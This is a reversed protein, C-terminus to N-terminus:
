DIGMTEATQKEVYNLLNRTYWLNQYPLLRRLARLDRDTFGESEGGVQMGVGGFVTGVDEITGLTPGLIAGTFNRSAYRSMPPNGTLASIGVNGRTAKEVIGNTEAMLAFVGSYDVSEGLVKLPDTSPTEGRVLEKMSYTLAGLAMSLMLGNYFAADKQQLGAVLMRNHSAFIFSKFQGILKGTPGKMGLPIDGVGPTVIMSDTDKTVANQFLRRTDADWAAGNALWIDGKDSHLNVQEAIDKAQREGIGLQALKRMDAKSVNGDAWKVSNRMVFDSSVSGAWQKLMQNWPSMLSVAGFTNAMGDLSREFKTGQKYSDGIDAIANARTSQIMEFIAANKKAEDMAMGFKKPNAVLSALMKGNSKLGHVMVPRALDPISSLMMGGLKSLFQLNRTVKNARLWFSTPDAPQNYTGYLLDRMAEFDKIDREMRENLQKEKGPSKDILKRYDARIDDIASKGDRSGYMRTMEIEPATSRMYYEAVTEIDSELFFALKNDNIPLTRSKFPSGEPIVNRPITGGPTGMINDYIDSSLSDLYQDNGLKEVKKSESVAAKYVKKEAALEKKLAEREKVAKSLNVQIDKVKAKITAAEEILGAKRSASLNGEPVIKIEAEADLKLKRLRAIEDNFSKTALKADDFQKSLGSIIDPQEKLIPALEEANRLDGQQGRMWEKVITKFRQPNAKLKEFNYVRTLYSDAFKVNVDEPLIDMEIAAKKVPNFVKERYFKAAEAVEPITHVDGNRMSIGVQEKFQGYTLKGSRKATGTLDKSQQVIRGTVGSNVSGRYKMFSKDLAESAQGTLANYSKISTEVAQGTPLGEANKDMYYNNEALNQVAKRSQLSPSTIMRGYPNIAVTKEFGGLTVLSEQQINTTPEVAAAGGSRPATSPAAEVEAEMAKAIQGMEGGTLARVSTGLVGALLGSAGVAVASETVTRTEQTAQLTLESLAAGKVGASATNVGASMIGGKLLARGPGFGVWNVPDVAAMVISAAIGLGGAAELDARNERQANINTKLWDSKEKSAGIFAIAHEEYGLLDDLPEYDDDNLDTIRELHRGPGYTFAPDVKDPDKGHALVSGIANETAFAASLVDITKPKETEEDVPIQSPFGFQQVPAKTIPM